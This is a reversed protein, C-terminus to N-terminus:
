MQWWVIHFRTRSSHRYGEGGGNRERAKKGPVQSLFPLAITDTYASTTPGKRCRDWVILGRWASISHHLKEVGVDHCCKKTENELGEEKRGEERRM